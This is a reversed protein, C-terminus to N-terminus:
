PNNIVMGEVQLEEEADPGQEPVDSAESPSAEPEFAPGTGIYNGFEDYEENDDM